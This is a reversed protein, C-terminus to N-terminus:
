FMCQGKRSGRIKRVCYRVFYGEQEFTIFMTVTHFYTYINSQAGRYLNGYGGGGGLGGGLVKKKPTGLFGV